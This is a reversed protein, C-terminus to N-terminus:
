ESKAAAFTIYIGGLDVEPAVSTSRKTAPTCGTVEGCAHAATSSPESKFMCDGPCFVFANGNHWRGPMQVPNFHNQSAIFRPRYKCSRSKVRSKPEVLKM